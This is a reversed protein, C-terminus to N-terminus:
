LEGNKGYPVLCIKGGRKVKYEPQLDERPLLLPSFKIDKGFLDFQTVKKKCTDCRVSWQFDESHLVTKCHYCIYCWPDAM